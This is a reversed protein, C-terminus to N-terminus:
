QVLKLTKSYELSKGLSDSWLVRITGYRNAEKIIDVVIGVTSFGTKMKVLDGIKM